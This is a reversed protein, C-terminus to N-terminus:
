FSWVRGNKNEDQHYDLHFEGRESKRDIQRIHWDHAKEWNNLILGAKYAKHAKASIRPM